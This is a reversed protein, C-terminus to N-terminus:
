KKRKKKGGTLAEGFNSGETSLIVLDKYLDNANAYTKNFDLTVFCTHTAPLRSLITRFQIIYDNNSITPTGSWAKLLLKVFENHYDEDTMNGYNTTTSLNYPISFFKNNYQAIFEKSINIGKNLLVRYLLFVLRVKESTGSYIRNQVEKVQIEKMKTNYVSTDSGNLSDEPIYESKFVASDNFLTLPRAYIQEDVTSLTIIKIRPILNEKIIEHTIGFGSLFLDAKRVTSIKQQFDYTGFNATNLTHKVDTDIDKTYTFGEFFKELYPNMKFSSNIPIESNIDEYYHKLATKYLYEIMNYFLTDENDSYIPFNEEVIKAYGNMRIGKKMDEENEDELDPDLRQIVQEDLLNKPDELIKLIQATYSSPAKELLYTSILLLQIDLKDKSLIKLVTDKETFDFLNLLKMIYVRSLKFPLEINNAFAFHILNGIFLYFQATYKEKLGPTNKTSAPLKSYCELKEIDFKTNLEYRQNNFFTQTPIFVKHELLEKMVDSYFQQSPGTYPDLYIKEQQDNDGIVFVIPVNSKSALSTGQIISTQFVSYCGIYSRCGFHSLMSNQKAAALIDDRSDTKPTIYYPKYLLSCTKSFLQSLYTKSDCSIDTDKYKRILLPPIKDTISGRHSAKFVIYDGDNIKHIKKIDGLTPAIDSLKQLRQKFFSCNCEIIKALPKFLTNQINAFRTTCDTKIDAACKRLHGPIPHRSNKTNIKYESLIETETKLLMINKPRASNNIILNKFQGPTVFIELTDKDAVLLATQNYLYEFARRLRAAFETNDLVRQHIRGLTNIFAAHIILVNLINECNELANKVIEYLENEIYPHSEIYNYIYRPNLTGYISLIKTSCKNDLLEWTGGGVVYPKNLDSVQPGYIWKTCKAINIQRSTRSM